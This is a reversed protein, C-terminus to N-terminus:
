RQRQDFVWPIKSGVCQRKGPNCGKQEAQETLKELFWERKRRTDKAAEQFKVSLTAVASITGATVDLWRVGGHVDQLFFDGFANVALL